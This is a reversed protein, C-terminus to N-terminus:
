QARNAPPPKDEESTDVSFLAYHDFSYRRYYHHKRLDFYLGASKPLWLSTNKKAFPVPGYEVKQHESLLQIEPIPKVIDADIREIQFTDASIWARGKLDVRFTKGGVTYGHIHNPRDPRQRFHMLWSPQGRWKGQGECDFDFDSQMEPHFILALMVFGTTSISDPFSAQAFKATRYEEIYVGGPGRSIAAVYNYKRTEADTSLGVSDLQQHFLTEDAGFRTVDQVLEQVSKGAEALVQTSPCTVGPTLIPKADDVDPPRWTQMSIAPKPTAGLPDARSTNIESGVSGGGAASIPDSKRLNTILARVQYVMPNHPSEKLFTELAQIGKDKEGLGILAQGLALEAPGSAITGYRVGKTIAIQAEDRAKSYEKLNLYTDALLDHSLWDEDDALIAQELASRAAPYNKRLLNTRGLLTLTRAAHPRLSAATNLYTAAQGYDKKEFYLYGLLFNLDANSPALKYATELHKRANALRGSKLLSVAKNAEKKAKHSLLSHAENLTVAYPDRHLVIDVQQTVPSLVNIEKHTSLYGVATVVLDYKGLVVNIFVAEKHAPAIVFDGHHNTLNTLDFRASRDLNVPKEEAFVHVVIVGLNPSAGYHSTVSAGPRPAGLKQIQEPVGQASSQMNLLSVLLFLWFASTSPHKATPRIRLVSGLIDDPLFRTLVGL